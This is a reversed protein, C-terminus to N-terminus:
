GFSRQDATSFQWRILNYSCSLHLILEVYLCIYILSIDVINYHTHAHTLPWNHLTILCVAVTIEKAKKKNNTTPPPLSFSSVFYPWTRTVSQSYMFCRWTEIETPSSRGATATASDSDFNGDGDRDCDCDCNMHCFHWLWRLSVLLSRSYKVRMELACSRWFM